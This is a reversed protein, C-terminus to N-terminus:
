KRQRSRVCREFWRKLFNLIEYKQVSFFCSESSSQEMWTLRFSAGPFKGIRSWCITCLFLHSPSVILSVTGKDYHLFTPTKKWPLFFFKTEFFSLSLRFSGLFYNEYPKQIDEFYIALQFLTRSFNIGFFRYPHIWCDNEVTQLCLFLVSGLDM